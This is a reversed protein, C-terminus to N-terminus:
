VVAMQAAGVTSAAAPTVAPRATVLWGEAAASSACAPIVYRVSATTASPGSIVLRPAPVANSNASVRTTVSTSRGVAARGRCRNTTGAAAGQTIRRHRKWYRRRGLDG